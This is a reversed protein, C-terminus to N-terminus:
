GKYRRMVSDESHDEQLPLYVPIILFSQNVFSSIKGHWSKPINKLQSIMVLGM